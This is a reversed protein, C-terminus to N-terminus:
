PREEAAGPEASGTDGADVIRRGRPHPRAHDAVVVRDGKEFAREDALVSAAVDDDLDDDLPPRSYEAERRTDEDGSRAALYRALALLDRVVDPEDELRGVAMARFLVFRALHPGDALLGPGSACEVLEWDNRLRGLRCLALRDADDVPVDGRHLRTDAVQALALAAPAFAALRVLWAARRLTDRSGLAQPEVEVQEGLLDGRVADLTAEARVPDGVARAFTAADGRGLLHRAAAVAASAEAAQAVPDAALENLLLAAVSLEGARVHRRVVSWRAALVAAHVRADDPAIEAARDLCTAAAAMDGRETSLAALGLWPEADDPVAAAWGALFHQRLSAEDGDLREVLAAFRDARPDLVVAHEVFQREDPLRPVLGTKCRLRRLAEAMVGACSLARDIDVTPTRERWPQLRLDLANPDGLADGVAIGLRREIEHVAGHAIPEIHVLLEVLELDTLSRLGDGRVDPLLWALWTTVGLVPDAEADLDATQRLWDAGFLLSGRGDDLEQLLADFGRQQRLYWVLRAAMRPQRRALEELLTSAASRRANGDGVEARLTALALHAPLAGQSVGGWVRRAAPSPEPDAEARLLGSLVHAGAAVGSTAAVEALAAAAEDDARRHFADLALVFHQWSRLPAPMVTTTLEARQAATMTGEAAAVFAAQLSAAGQRLPDDVALADSGAVAALDRLAAELEAAVTARAAAGDADRWARLLDDLDGAARAALTAAQQWAAAAAPFRMAAVHLLQRAEDHQGQKALDLVRARYADALLAEAEAGPHRKVLDKAEKLAAM